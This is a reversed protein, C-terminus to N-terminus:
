QDNGNHFLEAVPQGVVRAIAAMQGISFNYKGNIGMSLITEHIGTSKSIQRQTIGLKFLLAKLNSNRVRAM